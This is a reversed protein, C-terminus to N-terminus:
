MEITILGIKVSLPAALYKFLGNFTVHNFFVSIYHIFIVNALDLTMYPVPRTRILNTRNSMGVFEIVAAFSNGVLKKIVEPRGQFLTTSIIALFTAKPHM